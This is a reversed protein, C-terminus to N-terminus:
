LPQWQHYPPPQRLSYLVTTELYSTITLWTAGGQRPSQWWEWSLPHDDCNEPYSTITGPSIPSIGWRSDPCLQHPAIVSLVLNCKFKERAGCHRCSSKDPCYVMSLRNIRIQGKLIIQHYSLLGSIMYYPFRDFVLKRIYDMLIALSFFWWFLEFQHRPRFPRFLSWLPSYFPCFTSFINDMYWLCRM